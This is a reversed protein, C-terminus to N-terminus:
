DDASMRITEDAISDIDYSVDESIYGKERCYQIVKEIIDGFEAKMTALEGMGDCGKQRQRALVYFQAYESAEALLRVLQTDSESAKIFLSIFQTINIDIGM